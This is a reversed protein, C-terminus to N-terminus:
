PVAVLSASGDALLDRFYATVPEVVAGDADILRYPEYRDGTGTLRGAPPAVLAALDRGLRDQEIM